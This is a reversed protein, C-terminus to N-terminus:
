KLSRAPKFTFISDTLISRKNDHLESGTEHCLIKVKKYFIAGHTPTTKM